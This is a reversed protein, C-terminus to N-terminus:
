SEELIGRDGAGDLQSMPHPLMLTTHSPNLHAM